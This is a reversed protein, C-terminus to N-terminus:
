GYAKIKLLEEVSVIKFGNEKAFNLTQKLVQATKESTDHFLIIAGPKIQSIVRDAIREETDNTTDLSRINWGIIYYNLAKSASALHPTTVGYPPRFFKMRKKIINYVIDSTADLEYMFGTKGKFDIFFSHSFTHNGITHGAADIKKIINENGQINKGIVFFTALVNQEALISLVKPTYEPNPGDDFTIAIIKEDTVANCHAKTYFNSQINASGYIIFVKYSLIPILFWWLSIGLFYYLLGITISEIVFCLSAIKFNLM